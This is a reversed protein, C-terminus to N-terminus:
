TGVLSPRRRMDPSRDTPPVTSYTLRPRPSTNGGSRTSQGGSTASIV